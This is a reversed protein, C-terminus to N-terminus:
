SQVEEGGASLFVFRERDFPEGVTAAAVELEDAVAVVMEAWQGYCDPREVGKGHDHRARNLAAALTDTTNM